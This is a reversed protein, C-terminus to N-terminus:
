ETTSGKAPASPASENGARDVATVTYFYVRDPAVTMDRFTPTPLLESNLRKGAAHEAESRYINYGAVDNEPAIAWSLELYPQGSESPANAASARLLTVVLGQPASPPFTDRPTVTAPNSDSSETEQDDTKSVTRVFYVYPTGFEFQTDLFRPEPSDGIRQPAGKPKPPKAVDTVDAVARYIRYDAIPPKSNTVTQAPATWTISVGDPTTEAKADQIALYAPAVPIEVINSDASSRKESARTRISYSAFGRGGAPFEQATLADAFRIHGKQAMQEATAPPLTALLSLNQSPAAAASKAATVAATSATAITRTTSISRYIEVTPTKKLSHKDVTQNPLTFTLIVDNGQQVVGLDSIAAPVPARRESPEGPSACGAANFVAGCLAAGFILRGFISPFSRTRRTAM